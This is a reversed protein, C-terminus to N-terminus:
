VASGDWYCGARRHCNPSSAWCICLLPYVLVVSGLAILVPHSYCEYGYPSVYYCDWTGAIIMLVAAGIVLFFACVQLIGKIGARCHQVMLIPLICPVFFMFCFFRIVLSCYTGYGYLHCFDCREHRECVM